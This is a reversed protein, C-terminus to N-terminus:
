GRLALALEVCSGQEHPLLPLLTVEVWGDGRPWDYVVTSLWPIRNRSAGAATEAAFLEDATSQDLLLCRDPTEGPEAPLPEGRQEIPGGFPWAVDDVNPGSELAGIGPLTTITVLYSAPEYARIGGIFATQGLWAVPDQLRAAFASLERAEQPIVWLDAEDGFSEADITSVHVGADGAGLEFSHSGVGRPTPEAGPRLTATYSGSSRLAEIGAIEERVEALAADTLHSELVRADQDGWIIRGDDLIVTGASSGCADDCSTRRLLLTSATQLSPAPPSATPSPAGPVTPVPTPPRPSTSAAPQTAPPATAPPPVAPSCAAAIAAVLALHLLPRPAPSTGRVLRSM